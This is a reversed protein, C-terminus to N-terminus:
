SFFPLYKSYFFIFSFFFPYVITKHPIWIHFKLISAYMTRFKHWTCSLLSILYGFIAFPWLELLMENLQNFFVYITELAKRDLRFKLKSLIKIKNWAKDTVYKIHQQWPCDNSLVIGVHKHSDVELVKHNAYVNISALRQKNQTFNIVIRGRWQSFKDLDNNLCAAARIPDEVIIFLSTDDSFLFLILDLPMHLAM